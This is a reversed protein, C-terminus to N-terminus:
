TARRTPREGATRTPRAPATVRAVTEDGETEISFAGAPGYALEVRRRVLELGLGGDRGGRFAGYSRVELTLQDGDLRVRLRVPGRSHDGHRLANELLPQL